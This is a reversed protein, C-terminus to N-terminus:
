SFLFNRLRHFRSRSRYRPRSQENFSAYSSQTHDHSTFLQPSSNLVAQEPLAREYKHFRSLPSPRLLTDLQESSPNAVAVALRVLVDHVQHPEIRAPPIGADPGQAWNGASHRHRIACSFCPRPSGPFLRYRDLEVPLDLGPCIQWASRADDSVEPRWQTWRLNQGQKVGAGSGSTPYYRLSPIV